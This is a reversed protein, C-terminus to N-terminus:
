VARGMARQKAQIFDKHSVYLLEAIQRILGEEYKDLQEDAFAVRWLNEILVTKARADYHDNILRTFQYLSTAQTVESKAMRVLEEVDEGSLQFQDLLLASIKEVEMEDLHRDVVMIEVMLAAAALRLQQDSAEQQEPALQTAFFRRIKDIM